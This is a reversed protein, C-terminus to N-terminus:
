DEMNRKILQVLLDVITTEGGKKNNLTPLLMDLNILKYDEGDISDEIMVWGDEVNVKLKKLCEVVEDYTYEHEFIEDFHEHLVPILLKVTPVYGNCDNNKINDIIVNNIGLFNYMNDDYRDAIRGKIFGNEYELKYPELVERLKEENIKYNM